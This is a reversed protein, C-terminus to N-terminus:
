IEASALLVLLPWLAAEMSPFSDTHMVARNPVKTKIYWIYIYCWLSNYYSGVHWKVKFILLINIIMLFGSGWASTAVLPHALRPSPPRTIQTAVYTRACLDYPM